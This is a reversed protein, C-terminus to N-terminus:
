VDIAPLYYECIFVIKGATLAATNIKMNFAGNAATDIYVFIPHDNTDDWLLAAGNDWGNFVANQTLSAVAIAAGSYGDTDANGWEVTATAGVCATIVQATVSKLIAGVPLPARGNKDSLVKTGMAGGDVAFDYLYEQILLKNKM